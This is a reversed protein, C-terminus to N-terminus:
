SPSRATAPVARRQHEMKMAEIVVLADGADVPTASRSRSACSRARCRPSCRAPPRLTPSPLPFRELEHLTSSGRGDDVYTTSGVRHVGVRAASATSPSTSRRAPRAGSSSTGLPQRRRRGPCWRRARVPLRRDVEEFVVESCHRPCTAGDRRCPRGPAGSRRTHSPRPSPTSGTPRSPPSRPRATTVPSSGPTPRAPWSSRTACCGCWCTATPRRVTSEADGARDGAADAAEDRTPAWAIVKALMADYHTRSRRATRRVRQRRPRRRVRRSGRVPRDPRERARLRGRRGRRLAPGRDRPRRHPAGLAAAPLPEGRAVRLQLEVLDLGTVIETVPHEVQLRTNVELFFFEGHRTSCSSSPAPASTASRGRRRSRPTAWIGARLTTTSRRAVAGGRHDEPPPAPDLVRARLPARRHRAHRRLDAGRHPAPARRYRELFVTGDGFAAEAERRAGAVAEALEAADRVVRM